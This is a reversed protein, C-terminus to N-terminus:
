RAMTAVEEAAEAVEGEADGSGLAAELAGLEKWEWVAELAGAGTKGEGDASEVPAAEEDAAAADSEAEARWREAERRERKEGPWMRMLMALLRAACCCCSVAALMLSSSSSLSSRLVSSSSSPPLPASRPVLCRVAWNDWEWAGAEREARGDEM